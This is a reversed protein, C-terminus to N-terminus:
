NQLETSIFFCVEEFSVTSRAIPCPTGARQGCSGGASSPLHTRKDEKEDSVESAVIVVDDKVTYHFVENNLYSITLVRFTQIIFSVVDAVPVPVPPCLM